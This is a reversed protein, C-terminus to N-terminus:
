LEDIRDKMQLEADKGFVYVNVNGAGTKFSGDKDLPLSVQNIRDIGWSLAPTGLSTCKQVEEVYAVADNNRM